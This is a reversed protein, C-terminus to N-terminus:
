RQGRHNAKLQELTGNDDLEDYWDHALTYMENFLRQSLILEYPNVDSFDLLESLSHVKATGGVLPLLRSTTSGILYGSAIVGGAKEPFRRGGWYASRGCKTCLLVLDVTESCCDSLLAVEGDVRGGVFLRVTGKLTSFELPVNVDFRATDVPRHGVGQTVKVRGFRLTEDSLRNLSLQLRATSIM